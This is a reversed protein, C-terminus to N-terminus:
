SLGKSLGKKELFFLYLGKTISRFENLPIAIIHPLNAAKPNTNIKKGFIQSKLHSDHEHVNM